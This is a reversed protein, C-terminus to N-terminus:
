TKYRWSYGGSHPRTGKCCMCIKSRSIGTAREAALGSEFTAIVNSDADLQEVPKQKSRAINVCHQPTRQHARLQTSKRARITPDINLRKASESKRRRTEATDPSRQRQADSMRKRVDPSPNSLGEGGETLNAGWHGPMGHHTKLEAILEIEFSLTIAEVSTCLVLERRCGHKKAINTHLQNRRAGRVRGINGKGVYFPRGDDTYDVYVFYTM